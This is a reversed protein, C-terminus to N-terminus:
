KKRRYFLVLSGVGLLVGVFFLLGQLGEIFTATWTLLTAGGLWIALSSIWCCSTGIFFAAISGWFTNRHNLKM